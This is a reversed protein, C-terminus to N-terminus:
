GKASQRGTKQRFEQWLNQPVMSYIHWHMLVNRNMSLEGAKTAGYSGRNDPMVPVRHNHIFIEVVSLAKTQIEM